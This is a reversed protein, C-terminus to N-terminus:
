RGTELDCRLVALNVDFRSEPALPHCCKCVAQAISESNGPMSQIRVFSAWKKALWTKLRSFLGGATHVAANTRPEIWLASSGPGRVHRFLEELQPTAQNFKGDRQLLGSFNAVILLRAGCERSRITIEKILDTNSLEDCVDWHLFTREVFIAQEELHQAASQHGESAYNRATESIEGGILVVDLPERPVCDRRRLEALTTLIALGAPGSGCPVDAIAVRNGSFLKAFVDAVHPMQNTPDIVAMQTRAASGPFAWALHENTERATAGGVPGADTPRKGALERLGNADLVSAYAAILAAPLILVQEAHNWLSDPLDNPEILRQM